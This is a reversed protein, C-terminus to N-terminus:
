EPEPKVITLDLTKKDHESLTVTQPESKPHGGEALTPSRVIM